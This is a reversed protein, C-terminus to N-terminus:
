SAILQVRQNLQQRRRNRGSGSSLPEVRGISVNVDILLTKIFFLMVLHIQRSYLM